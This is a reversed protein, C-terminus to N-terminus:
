SPEVVTPRRVPAAREPEAAALNLADKLRRRAWLANAALVALTLGVASWVYAGYGGMALFENM